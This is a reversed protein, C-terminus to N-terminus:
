FSRDIGNENSFSVWMPRALGGVWHNLELELQGVVEELFAGNYLPATSLDLRVAVKDGGLTRRSPKTKEQFLAKKRMKLM